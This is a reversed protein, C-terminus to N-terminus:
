TRRRFLVFPGYPDLGEIPVHKYHKDVYRIFEDNPWDVFYALVVIYPTRRAELALIAEVFHEPPSYGPALIQFRTSNEAGSLPYLSAYFPYAFVERTPATRLGDELAALLLLESTDALDVHGLRTDAGTPYVTRRHTVAVGLLAATGAVLAAGAVPSLMRGLRAREVTALAAELREATALLVVPMVFALHVADLNYAVSLLAVIGLLGIMLRARATERDRRRAAAWLGGALALPVFAPLWILLQGSLGRGLLNQGWSRGGHYARYGELPFRVLADYVAEPGAAALLAGYVPVIVAAVGAVWGGLVAVVPRAPLGYWRPLLSDLVLAAAVGAGIVVGKQHQAALLLGTGVGLWVTRTRWRPHLLAAVLAVTLVTGIWHPSAQSMANYALALDLLAAALALSRRAGVHRASAFVLVAIVAHIAAMLARAVLLRVGFLAFAAALLYHGLPASIEFFDRYIIEGRLIRTAEYLFLGEDFLYLDRPWLAGYALVVAVLAAALARDLPTM